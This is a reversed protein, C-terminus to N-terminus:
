AITYAAYLRRLYTWLAARARLTGAAGRERARCYPSATVPRVGSAPPLTQRTCPACPLLDHFDLGLVLSSWWAIHHRWPRTLTVGLIGDKSISVQGHPVRM